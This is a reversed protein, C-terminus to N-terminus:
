REDTVDPTGELAALAATLWLNLFIDRDGVFASEVRNRIAKGEESQVTHQGSIKPYKEGQRQLLM